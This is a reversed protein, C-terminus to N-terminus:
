IRVVISEATTGSAVIKAINAHYQVGVFVTITDESDDDKLKMTVDVSDDSSHQAIFGMTPVDIDMDGDSTQWIMSATPIGPTLQNKFRLANRANDTTISM